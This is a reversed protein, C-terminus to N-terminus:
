DRPSPSTYLLCSHHRASRAPKKKPLEPRAILRASRIAKHLTNGLVGTKVSVEPVNLGQDLLAQVQARMVPTLKRGLRPQAPKFFAGAGATRYRKVMRKVTVLPVGFARVIQAQTVTGNVILQTTFLRFAALDGEEHSFVPM